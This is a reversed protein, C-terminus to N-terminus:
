EHGGSRARTVALLVIEAGLREILHHKYDASVWPDDDTELEGAAAVACARLAEPDDLDLQGTMMAEAAASRQPGSALGGV